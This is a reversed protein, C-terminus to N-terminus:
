AGPVQGISPFLWGRAIGARSPRFAGCRTELEDRPAPASRRSFSDLSHRVVRSAPSGSGAVFRQPGASGGAGRGGLRRRQEGDGFDVGQDRRQVQDDRLLQALLAIKEEFLVEYDRLDFGFLPFSETFSGRGLTIEARGNAIAHLTSFREFVRVPDDSSLVTVATTLTIRETRAAIAALLMEPASVAFDDRHHEGVGFVDVGVRDALVGQEVTNRIVQADTLRTGDLDVTVDGFTDLGFELTMNEHLRM